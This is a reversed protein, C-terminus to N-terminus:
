KMRAMAAKSRRCRCVSAFGRGEEDIVEEFGTDRCYPCDYHAPNPNKKAEELHREIMDRIERFNMLQAGVPQFNMTEPM